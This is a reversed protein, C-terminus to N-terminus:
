SAGEGTLLSLNVGKFRRHLKEILNQRWGDFLQKNKEFEEECKQAVREKNKRSLQEQHEFQQKRLECQKKAEEVRRKFDENDRKKSALETLRRRNEESLQKYIAKEKATLETQDQLERTLSEKQMILEDCRQGRRTKLNRMKQHNEEIRDLKRKLSLAEGLDQAHSHITRLLSNQLTRKDHTMTIKLELEKNKSRRGRLTREIRTEDQKLEEPNKVIKQDLHEHEVRISDYKCKEAKEKAKVQQLENQVKDLVQKKLEAQKIIGMGEHKLKSIQQKIREAQEKEAEIQIRREKLTATLSAVHNLVQSERKIADDLKHQYDNRLDQAAHKIKAAGVLKQLLERHPKGKPVLFHGLGIDEGPIDLEACLGKLGVLDEIVEYINKYINEAKPSEYPPVKLDGTIKYLSDRVFRRTPNRLDSVNCRLNFYHELEEQLSM